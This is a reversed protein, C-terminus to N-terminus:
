ITPLFIACAIWFITQAAAIVTNIITNRCIHKPIFNQDMAPVFVDRYFYQPKDSRKSRYIMAESNSINTDGFYEGFLYNRETERNTRISSGPPYPIPPGLASMFQWIAVMICGYSFSKISNQLGERDDLPYNFIFTANLYDNYDNGRITAWVSAVVIYGIFQSM